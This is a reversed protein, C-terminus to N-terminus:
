IRKYPCNEDPTPINRPWRESRGVRHLRVVDDQFADILNFERANDVPCSLSQDLAETTFHRGLPEAVLATADVVDLLVPVM